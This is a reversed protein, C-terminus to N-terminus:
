PDINNTSVVQKQTSVIPYLKAVLNRGQFAFGDLVPIVLSAVQNNEFTAIASQRNNNLDNNFKVTFKIKPFLTSLFKKLKEATAASTLQEVLIERRLDKTTM